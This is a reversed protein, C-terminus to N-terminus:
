HGPIRNWSENRWIGLITARDVGYKISLDKLWPLKIGQINNLIPHKSLDKKLDAILSNSFRANYVKEGYPIDKYTNESPTLLQLNELRNDYPINNIHDIQYIGLDYAGKFTEWVLKHIRPQSISGHTRTTIRAYGRGVYHKAYEHWKRVRKNHSDESRRVDGDISVYLPLTPHGGWITQKVM